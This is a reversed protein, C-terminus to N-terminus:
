IILLPLAKIEEICCRHMTPLESKIM